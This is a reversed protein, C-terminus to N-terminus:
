LRGFFSSVDFYFAKETGCKRCKVDIKDIWREDERMLSQEQVEWSGGCVCTEANIHAYEMQVGILENDAVIVIVDRSEDSM